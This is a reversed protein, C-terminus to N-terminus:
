RGSLHTVVKYVWALLIIVGGVTVVRRLVPNPIATWPRRGALAFVICLAAAVSGVIFGLAGAPQVVFARLFAGHAMLSFSTTMGCFPCPIHFLRMTLCPPLGLQEHTGFGRPDPTLVRGIAVVALFCLAAAGYSAREFGSLRVLSLRRRVTGKTMAGSEEDVTM